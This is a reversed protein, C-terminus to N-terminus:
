AGTADCTDQTLHPSDSIGGQRLVNPDGGRARGTSPRETEGERERERLWKPELWKPEPTATDSLRLAKQTGPAIPDLAAKPSMWRKRAFRLLCSPVAPGSPPRWPLPCPFPALGLPFQSQGCQASPVSLKALLDLHKLHPPFQGFSGGAFDSRGMCTGLARLRGAFSLEGGGAGEGWGFGSGMSTSSWWSSAALSNAM